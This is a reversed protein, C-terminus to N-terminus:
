LRLGYRGVSRSSAELVLFARRPGFTSKWYHAELARELRRVHAELRAELRRAFAELRNELVKYQRSPSILNDHFEYHVHVIYTYTHHYQPYRIM